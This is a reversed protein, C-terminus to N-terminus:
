QFLAAIGGEKKLRKKSILMAEHGFGEDVWNNFRKM